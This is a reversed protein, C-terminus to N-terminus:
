IELIKIFTYNIQINNMDDSLKDDKYEVMEKERFGSLIFKPIVSFLSMFM